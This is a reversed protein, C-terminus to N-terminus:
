FDPESPGRLELELEVIRFRPDPGGAFRRTEKFGLGLYMRLAPVFFPHESTTVRAANTGMERLRRLIELIQRRGFGRGRWEPLVCNQGVIGYRPCPRPDYSGLGIHQDELCSVFVCRGASGPRAFARRDFDAWNRREGEWPDPWKAALEAYSRAIIDALAGPRFLSIPEFSLAPSGMVGQRVFGGARTLAGDKKFFPSVISM